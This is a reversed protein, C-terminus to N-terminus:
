SSLGDLYGCGREHSQLDGKDALSIWHAHEEETGFEEGHFARQLGRCYGAWYDPRHEINRMVEAQFIKSKFTQEDMLGELSQTAM